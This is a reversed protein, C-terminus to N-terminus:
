ADPVDGAGGWKSQQNELSSFSVAAVNSIAYRNAPNEVYPQNNVEVGVEVEVEVEQNELL